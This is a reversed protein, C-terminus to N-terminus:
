GGVADFDEPSRGIQIVLRHPLCVIPRSGDTIPGQNVCIQDRCSASLVSIRGFEVLVVNYAGDAGTVTFSYPLDGRDLDITKIPTNHHYITANTGERLLHSLLIQALAAILALALFLIIWRKTTM